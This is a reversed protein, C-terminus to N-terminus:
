LIVWDEQDLAHESAVDLMVWELFFAGVDLALATDKMLDVEMRSKTIQLNISEEDNISIDYKSGRKVVLHEIHLRKQAWDYQRTILCANKNSPEMAATFRYPPVQTGRNHKIIQIHSASNKIVTYRANYVPSNQTAM